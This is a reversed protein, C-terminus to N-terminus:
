GKYTKLAQYIGEVGFSLAEVPIREDAAHALSFFEFGEPLKMPIFGYFQIGLRALIRGDTVAALLYSVPVGDPDLTKLVGALHDFLGMDITSPGPDYKSVEVRVGEQSVLAKIEEIFMDSEFGPLMRGDLWVAVESPVVNIKEGGRVITANVTNHFMPLFANGVGGLQKLLFGSLMPILLMKIGLNMPFSFAAAMQEIMQRVPATEHFPLRANSLKTLVDGLKGMANGQVISSGHGGPGQATIKIQCSQKEAVQIPYFRKGSLTINFGGFEGLAYKVGNFVEPHEAVMYNAGYEGFAEEDSLALFIVDGAPMVEEEKLKIMAAIMMAVGGKMDLAGRGWLFGDAIKGEFPPHTWHQDKTTVVDVHGYVLIPPAQGAGRIRCVLNPRNEDKAYIQSELGAEQLLNRIFEICAKENGPPNTTDFQILKQLITDVQM